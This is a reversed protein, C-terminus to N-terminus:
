SVNRLARSRPGLVDPAAIDILGGDQSPWLGLQRISGDYGVLRAALGTTLLWEEAENGGVILATSAANATVCSPAAVTATRWKGQAPAGTRPDIIHHVERGARSWRRCLVSSTALAGHLLRVEQTSSSDVSAPDEAVLIPWGGAPSQGAIAVDGGLSVLVGGAHGIARIASQAARDSGLGKATAGLDLVIGPTRRLLRGDLNMSRAGPAPSPLTSLQGQPTLAAFDRDYGWSVLAGGITPDVLGNTWRAAALAMAIAEAFGDSLFFLEGNSENLKSLETDERFRSVQDDLASLKCDVAHLAHMLEQPPWVVVRATTGLAAREAVAVEAEGTHVSQWASSGEESRVLASM